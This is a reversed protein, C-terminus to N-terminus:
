VNEGIVIENRKTITATAVVSVDYVQAEDLDLVYVPQWTNGYPDPFICNAAEVECKGMNTFGLAEGESYEWDFTNPNLLLIYRDTEFDVSEDHLPSLFAGPDNYISETIAYYTEERKDAVSM